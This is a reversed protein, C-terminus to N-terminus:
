KVGIIIYNASENTYSYDGKYETWSRATVVRGSSAYCEFGDLETDGWDNSGAGYGPSVMWKCQGESYGSPLPITSGHAIHGTSVAVSTQAIGAIEDDIYKKISQQTALKTASDDAMDDQDLVWSNGSVDTDNNMTAGAAAVNDADTKDSDDEVNILTRIQTATLGVINGGTIRGVLRQEDITVAAPTDDTTAALITQANYDSEMVAGAASVNDTDTKDSENEVNLLSQVQSVTLAAIDGTALRGLLTSAAITVAAPTNDTTAALVTNANYDSEMVAGAADVNAADTVDADEEVGKLFDFNARMAVIDDDWDNAANPVTEDYAM